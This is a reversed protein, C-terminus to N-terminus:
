PSSSGRVTPRRVRRLLSARAPRSSADESQLLSAAGPGAGVDSGAAPQAVPPEPGDLPPPGTTFMYDGPSRYYIVPWYTKPLPTTSASFGAKQAADRAAELISFPNVTPVLQHSPASLMETEPNTGPDLANTIIGPSPPPPPPPPAVTPPCAPPGACLVDCQSFCSKVKSGAVPGDGGVAPCGWGGSGQVECPGCSTREKGDTDEYAIFMCKSGTETGKDLCQSQSIFGTEDSCVLQPQMITQQHMCSSKCDMVQMGNVWAGINWCPIEEGDLECPLCYQKTAQIRKLPDKTTVSTWMCGRGEVGLCKNQDAEEGMDCAHADKSQESNTQKLRYVEETADQSDSNISPLEGLPVHTEFPAGSYPAVKLSASRAVAPALSVLLTVFCQPM